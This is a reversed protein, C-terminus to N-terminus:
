SSGRLKFMNGYGKEIIVATWRKGHREEMVFEFEHNSEM